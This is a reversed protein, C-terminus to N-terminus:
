KAIDHQISNDPNDFDFKEVPIIPGWPFSVGEKEGNQFVKGDGAYYRLHWTDHTKIMVPTGVKYEDKEM